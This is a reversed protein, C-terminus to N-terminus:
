VIGAEDLDDALHETLEHVDLHRGDVAPKGTVEKGDIVKEKVVRFSLLVHVLNVRVDDFLEIANLLAYEQIAL